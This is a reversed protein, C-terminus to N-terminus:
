EGKAHGWLLEQMVPHGFVLISRAFEGMIWMGPYLLGGIITMGLVQHDFRGKDLATDGDGLIRRRDEPRGIDLQGDAPM